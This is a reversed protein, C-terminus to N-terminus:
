AGISTCAPEKKAAAELEASKLTPTLSAGIGSMSTSITTSLTQAATKFADPSSTPLAGAQTEAAALAVKLKTFADVVAGEIKKGNSVNPTGAAKLKTIATDTDAVVASLFDQLAKKGQAATTGAALNSVAASKTQVDKEWPGVAGCISKVYAGATVGSSSSSSGCAALGATLALVGFVGTIRRLLM